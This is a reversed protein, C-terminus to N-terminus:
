KRPANKNIYVIGIFVTICLSGLFGLAVALEHQTGYSTNMVINMVLLEVDIFLLLVGVLKSLKEKDYRDKEEKSMTNYGAILWAGKGSLLSITILVFLGFVIWELM